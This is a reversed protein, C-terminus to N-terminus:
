KKLKSRRAKKKQYTKPNKMRRRTKPKIKKGKNLLWYGYPGFFFGLCSFFVGFAIVWKSYRIVVFGDVMEGLHQNSPYKFLTQSHENIKALTPNFTMGESTILFTQNPLHFLGGIYIQNQPELKVQLAPIQDSDIVEFAYSNYNRDSAIVPNTNVVWQNDVIKTITEGEATKTEASVLLVEDRLKVSFPYDFGFDIIERIDIGDNLQKLDYVFTTSGLILDFRNEPNVKFPILEGKMMKEERDALQFGVPLLYVAIGGCIVGLLIVFWASKM